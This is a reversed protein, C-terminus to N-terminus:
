SVGGVLLIVVKGPQSGVVFNEIKSNAPNKIERNNYMALIRYIPEYWRLM